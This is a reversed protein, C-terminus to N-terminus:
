VVSKRDRGMGDWDLGVGTIEKKREKKSVVNEILLFLIQIGSQNMKQWGKQLDIMVFGLLLGLIM